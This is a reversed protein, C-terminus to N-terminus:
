GFAAAGRRKLRRLRHRVGLWYTLYYGLVVAGAALSGAIGAVALWSEDQLGARWTTWARWFGYLLRATVVLTVILVLWRNPTYFLAHPTREWRTWALGLLGAACGGALGMLTYTFADPVWTGTLAATALFLGTSASLGLVNTTAVWGRAQRRATGLRYRQILSFPVLAIVLLMVFVIAVAVLVLPV